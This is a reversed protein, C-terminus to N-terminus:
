AACAEPSGPCVPAASGPPGAPPIKKEAATAHVQEDWMGTSVAWYVALAVVLLLREIRDALRLHSDELDFGRSKLDSFLAEIGWRMGYDLARWSTPRESLAIIWPEDHGPDHIMAVHSPVQKETLLVDALLWQRNQFCQALTTEGGRSDTVLLHAKLRLRWSWGHRACWALLDPHGYFRDGMLVPKVGPPLWAAIRELLIEQDPFGIAGATKRVLWTLPLARDGVRVAVMLMEHRHRRTARSQDLILVPQAGGASARELVERGYPAMVRAPDIRQNALGRKIWQFRSARNDTSLPLGHGLAMLNVNQEHLVTAVLTALKRTQTIRQQPLRCRMDDEVVQSLTRMESM